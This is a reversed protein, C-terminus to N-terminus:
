RSAEPPKPLPMWHTPSAYCGDDDFWKGDVSQCINIAGRVASFALVRTGDNPATEMPRWQADLEHVELALARIMNMMSEIMRPWTGHLYSASSLEAPARRLFEDILDMNVHKNM